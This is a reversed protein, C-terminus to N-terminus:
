DKVEAKFCPFPARASIKPEPKSKVIKPKANLQDQGSRRVGHMSRRLAKGSSGKRPDRLQESAEPLYFPKPDLAQSM